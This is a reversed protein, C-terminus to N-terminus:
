IDYLEDRNWKAGSRVQASDMLAFCEDIWASGGRSVRIRLMERILNNLTTQNRKAYERSAALLDEDISITVNPM